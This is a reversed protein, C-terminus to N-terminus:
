QAEISALFGPHERLQKKPTGEVDRNVKEQIMKAYKKIRLGQCSHLCRNLELEPM